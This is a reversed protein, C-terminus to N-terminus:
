NYDPNQILLDNKDIENQPIPLRDMFPKYDRTELIQYTFRLSNDPLKVVSVKRAPEKFYVEGLKWRRVDFFRHEEFCLEVRRENRIKERMAAQSLGPTMAPQGARTRVQNLATYVSADPGVAENQAEAYNLLVEAYRIFIWDNDANGNAGYKSTDVLKLLGYGTKSSDGNTPLNANGGRFTEIVKGQKYLTGNHIVTKDLRNDRNTYPSQDDYGSGPESIPLGNKMEYADVLNQTPAFGGWAGDNANASFYWKNRAGDSPNISPNQFKRAFIVENNGLKDMFLRYYDAYLGYQGSGPAPGFAMVERGAAAAATFRTTADAANPTNLPSAFYLLIRAKLALAAVKTARGLDATPMVPPLDAAAADCDAVIQTVCEEYTNRAIISESPTGTTIILPVGGFCKILEAYAFARLFIAEAKMRTKLAADAPVADIQEIFSNCKRIVAYQSVWIDDAYAWTTPLQGQNLAHTSAALNNGEADDTAMAFASMGRSWGADGPNQDRRAFGNPMTGYINTLVRNALNIDQFVTVDSLSDSPFQELFSKKCSGTMIVVVLIGTIWKLKRTLM